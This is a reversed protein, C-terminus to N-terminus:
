YPYRSHPRVERKRRPKAHVPQNQRSTLGIFLGTMFVAAYSGIVILLLSAPITELTYM